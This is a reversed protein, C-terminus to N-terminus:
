RTDGTLAAELDIVCGGLPSDALKEAVPALAAAFKTEAQLVSTRYPGYFPALLGYVSDLVHEWATLLPDLLPEITPAYAPYQALIPGILQLAPQYASAAAFAEAKLPGFAPAFAILSQLGGSQAPTRLPIPCAAPGGTEPNSGGAPRSSSVPPPSVHAVRTAAPSDPQSLVPAVVPAAGVPLAPAGAQAAPSSAASPVVSAALPVVTRTTTSTLRVSFAALALLDLAVVAAVAARAISLTRM